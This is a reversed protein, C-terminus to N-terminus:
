LLLWAVTFHASFLVCTVVQSEFMFPRDLCPSLVVRPSLFFFFFFFCSLEFSGSCRRFFRVGLVFRGALRRCELWSGSGSLAAEWCGLAFWFYAAAGVDAFWVVVGVRRVYGLFQLVLFLPLICLWSRAWAM